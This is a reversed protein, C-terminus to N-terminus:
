NSLAAQLVLLVFSYFHKNLKRYKQGRPESGLHSKILIDFFLRNWCHRHGAEGSILMQLQHLQEFAWPYHSLFKKNQENRTKTEILRLVNGWPSPLHACRSNVQIVFLYRLDCFSWFNLECM